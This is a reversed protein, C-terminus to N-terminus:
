KERAVNNKYPLRSVLDGNQQFILESRLFTDEQYNFNKWGDPSWMMISDIREVGCKLYSFPYTKDTKEVVVPGM